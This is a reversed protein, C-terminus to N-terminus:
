ALAPNSSDDGRSSDDAYMVVKLQLRHKKALQIMNKTGRSKGDWFCICHTARQAMSMNRRNGAAKGYRDWDAPMVERKFLMASAFNDGLTDAGRAGGTIVLDPIQGELFRMVELRLLEYDNFTRTGAIILRM